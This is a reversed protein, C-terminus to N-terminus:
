RARFALRASRAPAFPAAGGYEAVVRWRGAKRLRQSYGFPRNANKSRKHLTVWRGKRLYQWSIVVKGGPEFAAGPARVRGRVSRKLGRGALKLEVLPSQAPMAGPDVRRVAIEQRTTNGFEDLAEVTVTVPGYPLRRAGMWDIEVARGNRLGETFSRIKQGGAYLSIRGLRSEDDHAAVRILLSRDYVAGATPAQVTVRPPTFDGCGGSGPGNRIVSHLADWAPRRTNDYRLLGYRGLETDEATVDRASFWLAARVYPYAALCRYALKLYAAQQAESVGAAKRGASAGRACMGRSASWGIESLFIPKDGDGHAALVAHTERFGLFSFRGVRGNERYFVDPSTVLCATDTHSAVGDFSDGAGAGYLGELFPYDNGTSAGALVLASSDADKIARYAARLLPAYSAPSVAGHWFQADDPENWIEWAAIRGHYRASMAGVFRGFDAPDRPPVLADASGNAWSPAGLVVVLVKIGRANAGNVIEDIGGIQAADWRGPGAPEIQDWRVFARVWGAGLASAQEVSAGGGAGVANIGVEAAQAQGAGVLVGFCVLLVVLM